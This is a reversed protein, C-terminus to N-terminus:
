LGIKEAQFQKLALPVFVLLVLPLIVLVSVEEFFSLFPKVSSTFPLASSEVITSLTCLM